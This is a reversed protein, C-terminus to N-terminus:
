RPPTASPPNCVELALTRQSLERQYKHGSKQKEPMGSHNDLQFHM